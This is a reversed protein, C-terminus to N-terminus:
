VGLVVLRIQPGHRRSRAARVGTPEHGGDTSRPVAIMLPPGGGERGKDDAVHLCRSRHWKVVVDSAHASRSARIDPRRPRFAGGVNITKPTPSFGDPRLRADRVYTKAFAFLFTEISSSYRTRSKRTKSIKKKSIMRAQSMTIPTAFTIRSIKFFTNQKTFAFRPILFYNLGESVTTHTLIQSM